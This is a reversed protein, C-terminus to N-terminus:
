VSKEFHKVESQICDFQATQVLLQKVRNFHKDLFVLWNIQWDTLVHTRYFVFALLVVKSISCFWVFHNSNSAILHWSSLLNQQVYWESAIEDVLDITQRKPCKLSTPCLEFLTSVSLSLM